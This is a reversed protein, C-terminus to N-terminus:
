GEGESHQLCWECTCGHEDHWSTGAGEEDVWVVGLCHCDCCRATDGDYAYGEDAETLVEAEEGCYPCDDDFPQWRNAM